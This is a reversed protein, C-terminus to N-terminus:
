RARGDARARSARARNGRRGRGTPHRLAVAAAPTVNRFTVSEEVYLTVSDADHDLYGVALDHGSVLEFDGGRLSVVASGELAPASVLSGRTILKLHELVPYGGKETGEIVGTYDDPGLAVSYPGGVGEAQLMAVARAVLRPFEAYDDGIEVPEHASAAALGQVGAAPHGEFILTDEARAIRRAADIVPDLDPDPAGRDLADLEARSLKLEARLEVLPQVRRGAARVGEALAPELPDTRGTAVAGAEWGLPGVFDVIRRGGLFNSLSRKAEADIESWAADSIPALDRRLHNM